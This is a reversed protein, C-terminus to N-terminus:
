NFLLFVLVRVLYVVEFIKGIGKTLMAGTPGGPHTGFEGWNKVDSRFGTYGLKDLPDYVQKKYFEGVGPPLGQPARPGYNPAGNAIQNQQQNYSSM